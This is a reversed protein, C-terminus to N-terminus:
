SWRLIFWNRDKESTFVLEDFILHNRWRWYDCLQNDAIQYGSPGFTEECWRTIERKRSTLFGNISAAYYKEDLENIYSKTNIITM